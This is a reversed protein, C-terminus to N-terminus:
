LFYPKPAPDCGASWAGRALSRPLHPPGTSPNKVITPHIRTRYFRRFHPVRSPVVRRLDLRLPLRPPVRVRSQIRGLRMIAALRLKVAQLHQRVRAAFQVHPMHPVIGNPIRQRTKHPHAAVVHQVGHTPVSETQGSLVSRQLVVRRRPLPCQRINLGHAFLHPAHAQTIVPRVSFDCGAQRVVVPPVLPQKQLHELGPQRVPLLRLHVPARLTRRHQRVLLHDLPPAPPMRIRQDFLPIQRLPEQANRLIRIIQQFPEIRQRAPRFFYLRHLTVPDPPAFARKHIKVHDARALRARIRDLHKRRPHIRNEPRGRHLHSRLM